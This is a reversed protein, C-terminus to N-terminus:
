ATGLDEHQSNPLGAGKLAEFWDAAQEPRKFRIAIKERELSWGGVKELFSRMAREAAEQAGLRYCIAARLLLSWRPTEIM